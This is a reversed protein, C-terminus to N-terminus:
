DWYTVLRGDSTWYGGIKQVGGGPLPQKTAIKIGATGDRLIVAKGLSQNQAFFDMADRTYEVATRGNGHKALHYQVSQTRNPFTSKYWSDNLYKGASFAEDAGNAAGGGEAGITGTGAVRGYAAIALLVTGVNSIRDHRACEAANVACYNAAIDIAASLDGPHDSIYRAAQECAAKGFCLLGGPGMVGYDDGQVGYMAGNWWATFADGSVLVQNDAVGASRQASPDPTPDDPTPATPAPGSNQPGTNADPQSHMHQLGSPDSAAVPNNGSYAYPNFSQPDGVVILPDPTTFINLGATFNRHDLRLDGGPDITKNLYGRTGPTASGAGATPNGYPYNNQRAIAGNPGRTMRPTGQADTLIFTWGAKTESAVPIGSPTNFHRVGAFSGNVLSTNKRIETDGLFVTTDTAGAALQERIALRLGADTYAYSLNHGGANPTSSTLNGAHDYGYTTTTGGTTLTNIRGVSDYALTSAPPLAPDVTAPISLNIESAPHPKTSPYTYSADPHATAVGIANDTVKSLRDVDYEYGLDYAPAGTVATVGVAETANPQACDTTGSPLGTSATTLRDLAASGTADEPVTDLEYPLGAIADAPDSPLPLQPLPVSPTESVDASDVALVLPSVAAVTPPIAISGSGLLGSLVLVVLGRRLM